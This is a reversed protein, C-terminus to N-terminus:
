LEEEWARVVAAHPLIGPFATDAVALAPSSYVIAGRSRLELRDDMTPGQWLAGTITVSGSPEFLIGSLVIVLGSFELTGMVQLTGRVVLVGSGKVRESESVLADGEVVSIRPTGPDDTNEGIPNSLRPLHECAPQAAFVDAYHQVNVTSNTAISPPDGSGVLQEALDEPVARRLDLEADPDPSALAPVPPATEAPNAPPNGIRHDMGSLLLESGLDLHRIDTQAYLAAPTFVLPSRAVLAAVVKTANYRGTGRSVISLMNDGAPAVRVQYGFPPSPFAGPSGERFPFSGDDATGAVHDPGTLMDDFSQGPDIEAIAHEVGAEATYFAEIEARFNREIMLDTRCQLAVYTGLPLVIMIIILTAMLATGRDSMARNM